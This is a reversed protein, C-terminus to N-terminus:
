HELLRQVGDELYRIRGNELFRTFRSTHVVEVLIKTSGVYRYSGTLATLTYEFSGDSVPIYDTSMSVDSPGLAFNMMRNIETVILEPTPDGIIKINLNTGLCDPNSFELRRYVFWEKIQTARNVMEIYTRGPELETPSFFIDEFTVDEDRLNPNNRDQRVLEVLANRSPVSYPIRDSM